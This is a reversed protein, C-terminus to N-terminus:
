KELIVLSFQLNYIQHYDKNGTAIGGINGGMPNSSVMKWGDKLLLNLDELNGRIKGYSEMHVWLVFAQQM